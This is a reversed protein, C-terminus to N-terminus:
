SAIDASGFFDEECDPDCHGPTFINGLERNLPAWDTVFSPAFSLAMLWRSSDSTKPRAGHLLAENLFLVDGAKVYVNTLTPFNSHVTLIPKCQEDKPWPFPFNAKHSGQIFCFPGDELSLVDDLYFIAKVFMCYLRGNHFTHYISMNLSTEIGGEYVLNHTLGNHLYISGGKLRNIAYSEIVRVPHNIVQKMRSVIGQSECLKRITDSSRVINEYRVNYPHHNEIPHLNELERKYLKVEDATLMQPVVLFGTTDFLYLEKPSLKIM